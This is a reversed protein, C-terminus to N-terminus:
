PVCNAGTFFGVHFACFGPFICERSKRFSQQLNKLWLNQSSYIKCMLTRFDYTSYTSQSKAKDHMGRSDECLNHQTICSMAEHIGNKASTLRSHEGIRPKQPACACKKCLHMANSAIMVASIVVLKTFTSLQTMLKM